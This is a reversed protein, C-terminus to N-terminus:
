CYASTNFVIYFIFCFVDQLLKSNRDRNDNIGQVALDNITM